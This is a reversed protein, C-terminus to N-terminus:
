TDAREVTTRVAEIEVDEARIPATGEIQEV